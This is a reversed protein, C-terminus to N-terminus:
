SELYPRLALSNNVFARVTKIRKNLTLVPIGRNQQSFTPTSSEELVLSM